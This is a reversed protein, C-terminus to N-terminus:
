PYFASPQIVVPKGAWPTDILLTAVRSQSAENLVILEFDVSWLDVHDHILLEAQRFLMRSPDDPTNRWEGDSMVEWKILRDINEITCMAFEVTTSNPHRDTIVACQGAVWGKYNPTFNIKFFVLDQQPTPGMPVNWGTKVRFLTPSKPNFYFPVYDAVVGYPEVTVPKERRAQKQAPDSNNTNTTSSSDCNLQGTSLISRLNDIRTFHWAYM